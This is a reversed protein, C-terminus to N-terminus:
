AATREAAPWFLHRAIAGRDGNSAFLVRNSVRWAKVCTRAGKELARLLRQDEMPASQMQRSIEFELRSSDKM